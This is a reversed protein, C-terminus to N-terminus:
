PAVGFQTYLAAIYEKACEDPDVSDLGDFYYFILDRLPAVPCQIMDFRPRFSMIQEFTVPDIKM